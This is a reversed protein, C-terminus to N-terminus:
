HSPLTGHGARSIEPPPPVPGSWIRQAKNNNLSPAVLHVSALARGTGRGGGRTAIAFASGGPWLARSAPSLPESDLNGKLLGWNPSMGAPKELCSGVRPPWRRM